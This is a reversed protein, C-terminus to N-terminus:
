VIKIIACYLFQVKDCCECGRKHSKKKTVKPLEYEVHTFVPEPIQTEFDLLQQTLDDDTFETEEGCDTEDALDVLLDLQTNNETESATSASSPPKPSQFQSLREKIGRWQETKEKLITAIRLREAEM